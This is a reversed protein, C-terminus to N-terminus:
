GYHLSPTFLCLACSRREFLHLCPKLHSLLEVPPVGSRFCNSSVPPKCRLLPAIPRSLLPLQFSSALHSVYFNTAM